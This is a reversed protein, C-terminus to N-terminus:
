STAGQTTTGAPCELTHKEAWKVAAFLNEMEPSLTDCDPCMIETPQDFTFGDFWDRVLVPRDRERRREEETTTM